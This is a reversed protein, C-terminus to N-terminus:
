LTEKLWSFFERQWVLANQPKLVWHNEDPFYLFKSKIGRLQAAQFAGQGQEVPVRYDKGGQVIMIPTDWNGVTNLPSAAYSRQAAKNDKEWYYGGKEWNEFWLEDTTGTMATFDFVGDHAIFTKFRKQHCGALAFVSYGGFSAGVAARSDKDVYPEKSIDDIADLYDQIVKGGWDKSVAENWETGFGPMGRRSPVVVIYGQSAMLQFNWRYSYFQTTASQPGGQCYLLTPYKKSPDFGPPYVVWEMMKKNDATTIWRRETKVPAIKQYAEDNVHSLQKLAGTKINLTYLEAARSIDEKAVVLEDGAQALISSIDFDGKTLQRIRPLMRTVGIDNVSFVQETGDVPAIFFLTKNDNGWIFSSVNIQDNHGTLNVTVNRTMVVLDNKDAEYGATKMQLWAMKGEQNFAPAVDYGKNSETLNTTAGTTIDYEYIDTNTSVAYETGFSKKTVYIIKKSDPSWIFDEDGGFPQQPCFYPEDPMIDKKEGAQGNVYPAFFVHSFKGEFWKDWHRYNLATYVQASTKDLEPYRDKGMVKKLLVEESSLIHKGDPAIRNNEVMGESSALPTPQGGTLPIIYEKTDMKNEAINPTSVKYIVSKKDKSIGVASVRGLQLLTEPSLPQQANAKLMFCASVTILLKRM